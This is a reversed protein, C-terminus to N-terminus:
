DHGPRSKWSTGQGDLLASRRVKQRHVSTFLERPLRDRRYVPNVSSSLQKEHLGKACSAGGGVSFSKVNGDPWDLRRFPRERKLVYNYPHQSSPAPITSSVM